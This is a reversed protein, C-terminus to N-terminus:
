HKKPTKLTCGFNFIVSILRGSDQRGNSLLGPAHGPCLKRLGKSYIKKKTFHSSAPCTPFPILTQKALDTIKLRLQVSSDDLPNFIFVQHTLEVGSGRHYPRHM